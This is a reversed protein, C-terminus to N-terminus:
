VRIERKSKARFGSKPSARPYSTVVMGSVLKSSQGAMPASPPIVKKVQNSPNKHVTETKSDLLNLAFIVGKLIHLIREYSTILTLIRKNHRQDEICEKKSYCINKYRIRENLERIINLTNENMINNYIGILINVINVIDVIDSQTNKIDKIKPIIVFLIYMCIYIANPSELLKILPNNCDKYIEYNKILEKCKNIHKQCLCQAQKMIQDDLIITSFNSYLVDEKCDNYCCKGCYVNTLDKKGKDFLELDRKQHEIKLNSYASIIKHRPYRNIEKDFKDKFNLSYKEGFLYELENVIKDYDIKVNKSLKYDNSFTLILKPYFVRFDEPNDYKNTHPFLDIYKIQIKNLEEPYYKSNVTDFYSYPAVELKKEEKEAAM